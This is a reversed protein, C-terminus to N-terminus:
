RVCTYKKKICVQESKCFCFEISHNSFKLEKLSYHDSIAQSDRIIATTYADEEAMAM